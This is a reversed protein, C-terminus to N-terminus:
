SILRVGEGRVWEGGIRDHEQKEFKGIDYFPSILKQVDKVTEISFKHWSSVEMSHLPVSFVLHRAKLQKLFAAPDEIHELIELAVCVDVEPLRAVDKPDTIDLNLFEVKGPAHPYKRAEDIAQEDYDVTYVKKALMSYFYTGLGAGCGLDLVVKDKLYHMAFLYRDINVQIEALDTKLPTFHEGSPEM